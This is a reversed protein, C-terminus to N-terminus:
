QPGSTDGPCYRPGHAQLQYVKSIPTGSTSQSLHEQMELCRASTPGAAPLRIVQKLSEFLPVSLSLGDSRIGRFLDSWIVVGKTRDFLSASVEWLPGDTRATGSLVFRTNLSEGLQGAYAPQSMARSAASPEIVFLPLHRALGHALDRSLLDRTAVDGDDSLVVLTLGRLEPLPLPRSAPLSFLSAAVLGAAALFALTPLTRGPRPLTAGSVEGDMRRLLEIKSSVELKRYINNIHTRVTAPAIHLDDAIQRYTQGSTYARAVQLERRSMTSPAEPRSTLM